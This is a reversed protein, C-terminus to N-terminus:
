ERGEARFARAESVSLCKGGDRRELGHMCLNISIHDRVAHGDLIGM